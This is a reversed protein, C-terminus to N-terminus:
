RVALSMDVIPLLMAMTVCGVVLGLMLVLAPELLGLAIKTAREVDREYALAVKFLGDDLRGREEGVAVMSGVFRPFIAPRRRVSESLAMGGAVEDRMLAVEGRLVPDDVVGAAVGLAPLLEVGNAVLAGVTRALGAIQRKMVLSGVLPLRRRLRLWWAHSTQRYRAGLVAALAVGVLVAWWWSRFARSAALLIQTAVPLVRGTDIESTFLGELRPVVLGLLLGVSLAGVGVILVPYALSARVRARMEEEQELLGSLREMVEPLRGSAEGSQVMSVYFPSVVSAEGLAQSFARGDELAAGVGELTQQFGGYVPDQAVIRLAGALPVGASLLDAMQRTFLQRCERGRRGGWVGSGERRGGDGTRRGVAEQVAIPCLGLRMLGEVAGQESGSEIAGSVLERTSRRAKYAYRV